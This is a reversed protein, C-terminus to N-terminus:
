MSYCNIMHIFYLKNYFVTNRGAKKFDKPNTLQVYLTFPGPDHQYSLINPQDLKICFIHWKEVLGDNRGHNFMCEFDKTNCNNKM